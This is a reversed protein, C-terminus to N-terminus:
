RPNLAQDAKARMTEYHARSIMDLSQSRLAASCGSDLTMLESRALSSADLPAHPDPSDVLRILTAEYRLQLGRRLESVDSRRGVEAYVSSQMSSFLDELSMTKERDAMGPLHDTNGWVDFWGGLGSGPVITQVYDRDLQASTLEIYPKGGKHWITFLGHQATAGQVWTAYPAPGGGDAKAMGTGAFFCLLLVVHLPPAKAGGTFRECISSYM